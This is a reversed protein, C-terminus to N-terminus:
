LAHQREFFQFILEIRNLYTHKDRVTEMLPILHAKKQEAPLQEFALGMNMLENVNPHYLLRHHFLEHVRLNNTMGMKGYSINKFIRCPIYSNEVQWVCQVAPALISEQILRKNEEFPIRRDTFGGIERFEIQHQNCWRHVEHWPDILMGVFHLVPKVTEDSLQKIEQDIEAPLLDTAWPMYLCDSTVYCGDYNEVPTGGHYKIVDDTYVQIVLKNASPISRYRSMECNHLVYYSSTILPIRTDVQGETIFLTHEFNFASVDDQDDFWHVTYGLHQFAKVFAGHIYSHTSSYLKHGWLVVQNIKM